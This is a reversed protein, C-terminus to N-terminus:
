DGRRKMEEFAENFEECTEIVSAELDPPIPPLVEVGIQGENSYLVAFSGQEVGLAQTMEVPMEIIWGRDTKQPTLLGIM